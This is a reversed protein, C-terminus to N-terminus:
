GGSLCRKDSLNEGPEEPDWGLKHVASATNENSKDSEYGESMGGIGNTTLVTNESHRERQTM